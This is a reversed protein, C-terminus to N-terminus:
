TKLNTLKDIEKAIAENTMEVYGSTKLENYLLDIIKDIDQKKIEVKLNEILALLNKTALKSGVKSRKQKKDNTNILGTKLQINYLQNGYKFIIDGGTYWATHNTSASLLDYIANGEEQFVSAAFLNKEADDEIGQAMIQVHMHAMHNMFADTTNGQWSPNDGYFINRYTWDKTHWRANSARRKMGSNNENFVRRAQSLPLFTSAVQNLFQELHQGVQESLNEKFLENTLPKLQSLKSLEGKEGLVDYEKSAYRFQYNASGININDVFLLSVAYNNNQFIERELSEWRKYAEKYDQKKIYGQIQNLRVSFSSIIEKNLREKMFNKFENYDLIDNHAVVGEKLVMQKQSIKLQRNILM